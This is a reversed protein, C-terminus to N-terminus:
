HQVSQEESFSQKDSAETAQARMQGNTQEVQESEISVCDIGGVLDFDYREYIGRADSMPWSVVVQYGAARADQMARQLLAEGVGRGRYDPLVGLVEITVLQDIWLASLVGAPKGEDTCIYYRWPHNNGLGCGLIMDLWINSFDFSFEYIGALVQVWSKIQYDHTLEAIEHEATRMSQWPKTGAEIDKVMISFSTFNDFGRCILQETIESERNHANLFWRSPQAEAALIALCRDLDDQLRTPQIRTALVNHLEHHPNDSRTRTMFQDEVIELGSWRLRECWQAVILQQGFWHAQNNFEAFALKQVSPTM